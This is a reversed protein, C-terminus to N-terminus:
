VDFFVTEADGQLHINFAYGNPEQRAVLTTRRAPEAIQSLIPDKNNLDPEDAFYMRTSLGINIGRAILWLNLHPAMLRGDPLSVPGPKITNFTFIGTKFDPTVRGWGAFGSPNDHASSYIGQADAQWIEILVDSVPTNTGDFVSGTVTIRQGQTDPGAIARGFETGSVKLGARRPALGIHVFPGATQSATEKRPKTLDSM